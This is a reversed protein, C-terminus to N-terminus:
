RVLVGRSICLNVILLLIGLHSLAQKTLSELCKPCFFFFNTQYSIENLLPQTANKIKSHKFMTNLSSMWVLKKKELLM